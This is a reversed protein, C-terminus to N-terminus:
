GVKIYEVQDFQKKLIKLKNQKEEDSLNEFKVIQGNKYVIHVFHNEDKAHKSDFYTLIDIITSMAQLTLTAITLYLTIDGQADKVNEKTRKVDLHERFMDGYLENLLESNNSKIKM